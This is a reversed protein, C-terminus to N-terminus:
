ILSLNFYSFKYSEIDKLVMAYPSVVENAIVSSLTVNNEISPPKKTQPYTESVDFYFEMKTCGHHMALRSGIVQAMDADATIEIIKLFDGDIVHYLAAYEMDHSSRANKGYIMKKCFGGCFITERIAYEIAGEDWVVYGPKSYHADRMAKYESPLIDSLTGAGIDSLTGAGIDSLTRVGINFADVFGLKKYYKRLYDSSPLLFASSDREHLYRAAYRILEECYGKRRYEPLTAVAYVYSIYKYKRGELVLRAPLLSLMSVPVDEGDPILVLMNDERSRNNLYFDIYADDDEFCAKWMHRIHLSMSKDAFQIM